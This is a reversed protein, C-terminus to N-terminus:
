EINLLLYCSKFRYIFLLTDKNKDSQFNISVIEKGFLHKGIGGYRCINRDTWFTLRRDAKDRYNKVYQKNLM